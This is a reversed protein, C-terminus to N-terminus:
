RKWRKEIEELTKGKTEPVVALVFVFMVFCIVAYILYPFPKGMKDVLMPFSQSISYCSVWLLVTSISMARGRIKTPFIESMVVWVVPGLTM